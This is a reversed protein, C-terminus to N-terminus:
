IHQGKFCLGDTKRHPDTSTPWGIFPPPNFVEVRVQASRSAPIDSTSLQGEFEGTHSESYDTSDFFAEDNLAVIHAVLEPTVFDLFVINAAQVLKRRQATLFRPLVANIKAAETRLSPRAVGVTVIRCVVDMIHPTVTWGIVALDNRETKPKLSRLYDVLFAIKTTAKLTNIWADIGFRPPLGSLEPLGAVINRPLDRLPTTRLEEADGGFVGGRLRSRVHMALRTREGELLHFTRFCAVVPIDCFEDRDKATRPEAAVTAHFANIHDLVDDLPVCIAMGHCAFFRDDQHERALMTVRMDLFRCGAALQAHVDLTQTASFDRMVSVTAARVLRSRLPFISARSAVDVNIDYACSDHSGALLLDFLCASAPARPRRTAPSSPAASKLAASPVASASLATVLAAPHLCPASVGTM